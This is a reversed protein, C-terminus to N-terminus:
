ALYLTLTKYIAKYSNDPSFRCSFTLSDESCIYSSKELVKSRHKTSDMSVCSTYVSPLGQENRPLRVRFCPKFPWTPTQLSGCKGESGEKREIDKGNRGEECMCALAGCVHTIV